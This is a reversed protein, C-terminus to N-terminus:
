HAIMCTSVSRYSLLIPLCTPRQRTGGIITGRGDHKSQIEDEPTPMSQFRRQCPQALVM